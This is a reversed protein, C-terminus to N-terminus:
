DTERSNGIQKRRYQKQHQTKTPSRKNQGVISVVLKTKTKNMILKNQALFSKVKALNEVLKDQNTDRHPSATIITADDTYAPIVGCTLCDGGGWLAGWPQEPATTMKQPQQCNMLSCPTFSRDLSRDKHYVLKWMSNILVGFGLQDEEGEERGKRGEERQWTKKCQQWTALGLLWQAALGTAAPNCTWTAVPKSSPQLVLKGRPQLDLKGSLQLDLKGSLQLDLKSSPQLDLKGHLGAQQQTALGAQWQTTLGSVQNAGLICPDWRNPVCWNVMLTYVRLTTVYM